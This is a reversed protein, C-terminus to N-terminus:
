ASVDRGMSLLSQLTGDANRLCSNVWHMHVVTGDKKLNRNRVEQYRVQGNILPLLEEIVRNEDEPHILGLTSWPKGQVEEFARGLMAEAGPSWTRIALNEDTKLVAIP